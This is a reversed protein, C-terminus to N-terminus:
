LAKGGDGEPQVEKSESDLVASLLSNQLQSPWRGNGGSIFFQAKQQGWWSVRGRWPCWIGSGARDGRGSRCPSDLVESLSTWGSGRLADAGQPGASRLAMLLQVLTTGLPSAKFVQRRWGPM